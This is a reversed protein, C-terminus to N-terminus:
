VALVSHRRRLHDCYAGRYRPGTGDAAGPATDGAGAGAAASTVGRLATGGRDVVRVDGEGGSGAGGRELCRRVRTIVVAAVELGTDM